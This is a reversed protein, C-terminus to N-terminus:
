FIGSWWYFPGGCPPLPRMMEALRSGPDAPALGFLARWFPGEEERAAEEVEWGFQEAISTWNPRKVMMKDHHSWASVSGAMRSLCPVLGHQRPLSGAVCTVGEDRAAGLIHAALEEYAAECGPVACAEKVWIRGTELEANGYACMEGCM